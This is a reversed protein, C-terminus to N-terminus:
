QKQLSFTALNKGDKNFSLIDGFIEISVDNNAVISILEDELKQIDGELCARMTAEANSTTMSTKSKLEYAATFGNCGGFGNIRSNRTDFSIGMKGYDQGVNHLSELKWFGKGLEDKIDQLTQSYLEMVVIGKDDVLHVHNGVVKITYNQENLLNLISNEDAGITGEFCAMMTSMLNGLRLKDGNVTANGSFGNCGGHGIVRYEDAIYSIYAKNSAIGKGNVKKILLKGEPLTNSITTKSDQHEKTNIKKTKIIEMVTADKGNANMLVKVKYKNGPVFRFNSLHGDYSEWSKWCAKKVALCQNECPIKDGKIQWKAKGLEQATLSGYSTFAAISLLLIYKIM